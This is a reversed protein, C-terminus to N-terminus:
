YITATKDIEYRGDGKKVYMVRYIHKQITIGNEKEITGNGAVWAQTLVDFCSDYNLDYVFGYDSEELIKIRNIKFGKSKSPFFSYDASENLIYEYSLNEAVEELNNNDSEVKKLDPEIVPYNERLYAKRDRYTPGIVIVIISCVILLVIPIIILLLKKPFQKM